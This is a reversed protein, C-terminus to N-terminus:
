KPICIEYLTGGSNTTLTIKAGIQESLDHILTLGFSKKIEDSMNFGNGNDSIVICNDNKKSRLYVNVELNKAIKIGHKASNSIIENVILGVSVSAESKIFCENLNLNFSINNSFSQELGKILEELYSKLNVHVYNGSVYLQEHLKSISIIQNELNELVEIAKNDEIARSQIRVLSVLMTLNNKLRHHMEVLLTNKEELAKKLKEEYHKRKHNEISLSVIQSVALAFNEEDDSWKRSSKCDEFCIVGALKGEIRVPIDMIAKIQYELCYNDKLEASIEDTYVNEIKIAKDSQLHAFYSPIQNELLIEGKSFLSNKYCYNAICEIRAPNHKFLWINVREVKLCISLKEGLRYLVDDLTDSDKVPLKSLEEFQKHFNLTM